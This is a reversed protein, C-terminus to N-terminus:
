GIHIERNYSVGEALHAWLAVAKSEKHTPADVSKGVKGALEPTALGALAALPPNEGQLRRTLFGQKEAQARDSTRMDRYKKLEEAYRRDWDARKAIWTRIPGHGRVRGITPRLSADLAPIAEAREMPSIRGHTSVREAVMHGDGWAPRYGKVLISDGKSVHTSFHLHPTTTGSSGSAPTAAGSVTTIPEEDSSSLPEEGDTGSGSTNRLMSLSALNSSSVGPTSAPSQAAPSTVIHGEPGGLVGDATAIKLPAAGTPDSSTSLQKNVELPPASATSSTGSPNLSSLALAQPVAPASNARSPPASSGRSKPADNFAWINFSTYPSCEPSPPSVQGSRPFYTQCEADMGADDRRPM